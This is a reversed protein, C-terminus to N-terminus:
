EEEEDATEDGDEPEKEDDQLRLRQAGYSQAWLYVFRGTKTEEAIVVQDSAVLRKLVSQISALPHKHEHIPYGADYLSDRVDTPTLADDANKLVRRIADTLGVDARIAATFLEPNEKKLNVGALAALGIVGERLRAAEASMSELEAKLAERRELVARLKGVEAALLLGYDAFESPPLPKPKRPMPPPTYDM